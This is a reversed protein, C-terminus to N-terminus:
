HNVQKLEAVEFALWTRSWRLYEMAKATLYCEGDALSLRTYWKEIEEYRQTLSWSKRGPSPFILSTVYASSRARCDSLELFQKWMYLDTPISTPAERWGFPLKTYIEKTHVVGTISIFNYTTSALIRKKVFDISLDGEAVGLVGSENIFVPMPHVFDCTALESVMLELHRPLLLDDDGLYAIYTGRARETIISHRYLDGTRAAKPFELLSIRNDSAALRQAVEKTKPTLGDGVIFVEFDQLTQWLLSGVSLELLSEHNHTPVLVSVLPNNSM